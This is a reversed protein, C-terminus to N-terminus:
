IEQLSRRAPSLLDTLSSAMRRRSATAFGDKLPRILGAIMEGHSTLLASKRPREESPARGLASKRPRLIALRWYCVGDDRAKHAPGM